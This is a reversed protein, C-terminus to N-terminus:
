SSTVQSECSEGSSVAGLCLQKKWEVSMRQHFCHVFNQAAYCSWHLTIIRFQWRDHHTVLTIKTLVTGRKSKTSQAPYEMTYRMCMDIWKYAKNRPKWWRSIQYIINSWKEILQIRVNSAILYQMSTTWAAHPHSALHYSFSHNYWSHIKHPSALVWHRSCLLFNTEDESDM